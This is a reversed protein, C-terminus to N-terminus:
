SSTASGALVVKLASSRGADAFVEYAHLLDDLPDVVVPKPVDEWSPRGPGTYVAAKM